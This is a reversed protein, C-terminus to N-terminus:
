YFPKRLKAVTDKSIWSRYDEGQPFGKWSVEVQNSRKRHVSAIRRHSLYNEEAPLIEYPYFFSTVTRGSSDEVTYTRPNTPRITEIRFVESSWYAQSGKVFNDAKKLLVRVPTGRKLPSPASKKEASKARVGEEQLWEPTHNKPDM